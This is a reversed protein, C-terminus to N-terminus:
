EDNLVNFLLNNSFELYELQQNKRFDSSYITNPDIRLGRKEKQAEIKIEALEISKSYKKYHLGM